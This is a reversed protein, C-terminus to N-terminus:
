REHDNRGRQTGRLSPWIVLIALGGVFLALSAPEPEPVPPGISAGHAAFYFFGLSQDTFNAHVRKLQSEVNVSSAIGDIWDIKDKVFTPPSGDAFLVILEHKSGPADQWGYFDSTLIGHLEVLDNWFAAGEGESNKDEPAVVLFAYDQTDAGPKLTKGDIADASSWYQPSQDTLKGGVLEQGQQVVKSATKYAGIWADSDPHPADVATNFGKSFASFADKNKGGSISCSKYDTATMVGINPRVLKPNSLSSEKGDTAAMDGIFGGVSCADFGFLLTGYKAIMTNKNSFLTQALDFDFLQDGGNLALYSNRNDPEPIPDLFKQAKDDWSGMRGAVASSPLGSLLTLALVIAARRRRRWVAFPIGTAIRM